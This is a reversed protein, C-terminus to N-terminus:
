RAVPLSTALTSASVITVSPQNIYGSSSNVDISTIEGTGDNINTTIAYNGGGGSVTVTPPNEFSYNTGGNTVTISITGDTVEIDSITNTLVPPTSQALAVPASLVTGLTTLILYLLNKKM